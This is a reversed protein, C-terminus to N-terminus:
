PRAPLALAHERALNQIEISKRDKAAESVDV